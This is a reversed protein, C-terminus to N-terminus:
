NREKLKQTVVSCDGITLGKERDTKTDKGYARVQAYPTAVARPLTKQTAKLEDIGLGVLEHIKYDSKQLIDGILKAKEQAELVKNAEGLQLTLDNITDLQTKIQAKLAKNEAYAADVSVQVAQNTPKQDQSTQTKEDTM